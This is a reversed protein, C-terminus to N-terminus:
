PATTDDYVEVHRRTHQPLPGTVIAASRQQLYRIWALADYAKMLFTVRKVTLDSVDNYFTIASAQRTHHSLDLRRDLFEFLISMRVRFTARPSRAYGIWIPRPRSVSTESIWGYRLVGRTKM